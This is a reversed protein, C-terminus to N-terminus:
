SSSASRLPLVQAVLRFASYAKSWGAQGARIPCAPYDWVFSSGQVIEIGVAGLGGLGPGFGLFGGEGVDARAAQPRRLRPVDHGAAHLPDGFHAGGEVRGLLALAGAFLLCRLAPWLM